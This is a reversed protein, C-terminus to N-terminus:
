IVRRYNINFLVKRPNLDAYKIGHKVIMLLINFVLLSRLLNAIKSCENTFVSLILFHFRNVWFDRIVEMFLSFSKGSM